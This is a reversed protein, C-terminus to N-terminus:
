QYEWFIRRRISRLAEVLEGLIGRSERGLGGVLVRLGQGDGPEIVSAFCALSM